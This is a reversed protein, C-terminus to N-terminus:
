PRPRLVAEVRGLSRKIREFDKRNEKIHRELKENIMHIGEMVTDLKKSVDALFIRLEESM